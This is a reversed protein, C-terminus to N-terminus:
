RNVIPHVVRCSSIGLLMMSLPLRVLVRVRRQWHRMRVALLGVMGCLMISTQM